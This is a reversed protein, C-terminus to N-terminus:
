GGGNKKEKEKESLIEVSDMTWDAYFKAVVGLSTGLQMTLSKLSTATLNIHLFFQFM